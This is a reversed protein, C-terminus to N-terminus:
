GKKSLARLIKLYMAEALKKQKSFNKEYHIILGPSANTEIIYYCCDKLNKPNKSIDGRTVMIDVGCFRLGMDKTLKIAIKRFEPHITDMADIADGGPSLNANDLLFIKQGKEPISRFSYGDHYLKKKMRRDRFDVEIGRKLFEPSNRKGKLLALISNKGDGTVSLPVREHASIIEKDLVVVRYDRGPLYKEIIAVKDEKFIERLAWVLESQNWALCVGIGQSKNNPKVIVPYGLKRAYSIAYSIRRNSNMERAWENSFITRGKAIPYGKKQMFFKAHSKDTSIGSSATGNLDLLYGLFSRVSGNRFIIQGAMGWEPEIVVKAGVKPALKALLKGLKKKNETNINKRM